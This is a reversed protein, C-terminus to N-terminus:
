DAIPTVDSSGDSFKAVLEVRQVPYNGDNRIEIVPNVSPQTRYAQEPPPTDRRMYPRVIPPDLSLKVQSAQIRRADDVQRKYTLAAILFAAATAIGSVIGVGGVLYDWWDRVVDVPLPEPM